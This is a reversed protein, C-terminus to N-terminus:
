QDHGAWCGGRLVGDALDDLTIIEKSTRLIAECIDQPRSSGSRGSGGYGLGNEPPESLDLQRRAGKWAADNEARSITLMRM